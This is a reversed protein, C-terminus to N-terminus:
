HCQNLTQIRMISVCVRKITVSIYIENLLEREEEVGFNKDNGLIFVVAVNQHSKSKEVVRWIDRYDKESPRSQVMILLTTNSLKDVEPHHTFNYNIYEKISRSKSPPWSELIFGNYSSPEDYTYESYYNFFERTKSSKKTSHDSKHYNWNRRTKSSKKTFPNNQLYNWNKRHHEKPNLWPKKVESITGCLLWFQHCVSIISVVTIFGCCVSNMRCKILLFNM